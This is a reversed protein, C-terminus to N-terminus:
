LGAAKNVYESYERAMIGAGAVKCTGISECDSCLPLRVLEPPEDDAYYSGDKFM